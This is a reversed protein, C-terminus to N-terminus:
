RGMPVLWGFLRVAAPVREPVVYVKVPERDLVIKRFVSRVEELTVADIRAAADFARREDGEHWAARGIRDAVTAAFYAGELRRLSLRRKAADLSAEDLWDFRALARRTQELYRFATPKRRHPLSASYIALVGGRRVSMSEVGAILAKHRRRVLDEEVLDVDGWALLSSLVDLAAADPGGAPPLPFGFIAVEVPPIDERLELERPFTWEAISPVDAPTTGDAPLAGYLERITALTEAPDVPGAVVLHANRPRYYRRYFDAAHELTAAAIDEKTGAPDLAYPHDGLLARLGKTFLRSFPNNENRLRLEETVIKKENALNEEGLTLNVMRDAELELLRRHGAPPIESVYVTEDFSTYANNDGGFREHLDWVARKPERTTGGFMLHEFLHAFGRTKPEENASGVRYWVQTAVLPMAPDVFISVRLGNELVESTHGAPPGEAAVAAAAWVGLAFLTSVSRGSRM